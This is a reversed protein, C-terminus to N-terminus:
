GGAAYWIIGLFILINVLRLAFNGWPLGEHELEAPEAFAVVTTLLVLACTMIVTKIRVGNEKRFLAAEPRREIIGGLGAPGARGCPRSRTEPALRGVAQRRALRAYDGVQADLERRRRAKPM